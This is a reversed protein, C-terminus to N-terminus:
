GSMTENVHTGGHVRVLVCRNSRLNIQVFGGHLRHSPIDGSDYSIRTREPGSKTKQDPDESPVVVLM